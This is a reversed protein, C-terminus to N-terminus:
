HTDSSLREPHDDDKSGDNVRRNMDTIQGAGDYFYFRHYLTLGWLLERRAGRSYLWGPLFITAQCLNIQEHCLVMMHSWLEKGEMGEPVPLEHPSIIKLESNRLYVTCREFFPKNFEPIDSM